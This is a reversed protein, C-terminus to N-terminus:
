RLAFLVSHTERGGGFIVIKGKVSRLHRRLGLDVGSREVVLGLALDWCNLSKECTSAPAENEPATNLREVVMTPAPM